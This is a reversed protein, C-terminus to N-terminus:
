KRVMWRDTAPMVEFGGYREYLGHADRTALMLHKVAQLEPHTIVAEVLWKGLGLGRHQELVFLDCLWAFTAYDTVVRAFGAQKDGLYLGFCLSHRIAKRSIELARGAAWYSSNSLYEHIVELDLRQQDTSIEYQDRREEYKRV